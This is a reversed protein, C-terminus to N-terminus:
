KRAKKKKTTKLFLSARTEKLQKVMLDQYEIGSTKAMNQYFNLLDCPIMLDVRVTINEPLFADQSIEVSGYSINGTMQCPPSNPCTKEKLHALEAKTKELEQTVSHCKTALDRNLATARSSEEHWSLGYDRNQDYDRQIRQFRKRLEKLSKRLRAPRSYLFVILAFNLSGVLALCMSNM